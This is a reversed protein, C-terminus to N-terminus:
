QSRKIDPRLTVERMVVGDRRVHLVGRVFSYSLGDYTKIM